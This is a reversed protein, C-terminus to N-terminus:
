PTTPGLKGESPSSLKSSSVESSLSFVIWCSSASSPAWGEWSTVSQGSYGWHEKIIVERRHNRILNYWCGWHSFLFLQNRIMLTFDLVWNTEENAFEPELEHAQIYSINNMNFLFLVFPLIWFCICETEEKPMLLWSYFLINESMGPLLPLSFNGVFSSLHYFLKADDDQWPKTVRCPLPPVLGMKAHLETIFLLSDCLALRVGPSTLTSLLLIM